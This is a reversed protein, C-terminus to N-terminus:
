VNTGSADVGCELQGQLGRTVLGYRDTAAASAEDLLEQSLPEDVLHLHVDRWHQDPRAGPEELV